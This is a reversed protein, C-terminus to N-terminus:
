ARAANDRFGKLRGCHSGRLPGNLGAAPGGNVSAVVKLIRAVRKTGHEQLYSKSRIPTGATETAPETWLEAKFGDCVLGFVPVLCSEAKAM